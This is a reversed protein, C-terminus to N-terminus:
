MRSATEGSMLPLPLGCVRGDGMRRPNVRRTYKATCAFYVIYMHPYGTKHPHHEYM